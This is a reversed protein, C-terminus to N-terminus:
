IIKLNLNKCSKNIPNNEMKEPSIFSVCVFKQGAVPKDEDLVDIYKPNNSGDANLQRVVSSKNYSDSM